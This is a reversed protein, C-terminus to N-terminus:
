NQLWKEINDLSSFAFSEGMLMRTARVLLIFYIFLPCRAQLKSTLITPRWKGQYITHMDYLIDIFHRKNPDTLIVCIDFLNVLYILSLDFETMIVKHLCGKGLNNGDQQCGVGRNRLQIQTDKLLFFHRIFLESLSWLKFM